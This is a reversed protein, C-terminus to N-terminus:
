VVIYTCVCMIIPHPELVFFLYFFNDFYIINAVSNSTGWVM